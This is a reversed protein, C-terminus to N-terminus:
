NIGMIKSVLYCKEFRNVLDANKGNCILDTFSQYVDFGTITNEKTYYESKNNYFLNKYAEIPTSEALKVTGFESTFKNTICNDVWRGLETFCEEKTFVMNSLRNLRDTIINTMEMCHNLFSYNIATEPELATVQLAQPDFVTLNLCASRLAGTYLKVIPKRTDLAYVFGLVQTHGEFAYEEPLVAEINVRNYIIDDTNIEGNPTLSIQNAPKVQVIFNDTYKSARELFPTVYAETSFYEKEKIRTAKGKLLDQLTLNM